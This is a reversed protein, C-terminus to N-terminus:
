AARLGIGLYTPVRRDGQRPQSHQVIPVAALLNRGFTAADGPHERGAGICWAKWREYLKAKTVQYDPGVECCERVFEAIPSALDELQGLLEQGSDPQLFRGRQRLGRWGAIAWRLIGPLEGLLRDTLGPDEQGFWSRTLRVLVMRGALAGSADPLRPLENTLLMFRTPLKVSV